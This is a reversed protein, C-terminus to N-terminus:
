VFRDDGRNRRSLKRAGVRGKTKQSFISMKLVTSLADGVGMSVADAFM